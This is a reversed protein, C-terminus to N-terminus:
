ADLRARVIRALKGTQFPKSLLNVGEELKFDGTVLDACYGSAYIVRLAPDERQLREALERGSMGGPMVLDTLLLRIEDRHRQWVALADAGNAAELVRYGLKALAARVAPRVHMDDEVFLITENGRAPKAEAQRAREGAREAVRPFYVRFTTGSGVESAVSVWGQHQEVIGFVTALGLGTGKGVEKTTFFPEFIRGFHEPPIGCGTDTVSLEVFSGPRANPTQAASAEDFDAAATAVTLRGGGPMADRSNVVLNMLIQDVMGADARIFLPQMSFNFQVQIDERLIRRLMKTMNGISHNLDLDVPQMIEKRSFLLLQRTLAAARHAAATIEEVFERVDQNLTGSMAILDCQMQIVALVNNFDHAVGGALQGVAEMKQAQRYEAALKRRDTIDEAVGTIRHIRGEADRVPFARDHIWRISSDPRVVRYEVDYPRFPEDGPPPTSAQRVAERDDPHVAELWTHPSKYLAGCPRGWIAEYAPSVYLIQRSAPDLVWFVERISETIERFRQESARLSEVARVQETTEVLVAAACEPKGDRGPIPFFSGNWYCTVGPLRPTEGSLPLDSIAKGGDLAERLLPELQTGLLPLVERVPRGLHERAPVGNMAALMENVQMFRHQRDVLALGATAGHFFANLRQERLAIEERLRKREARIRADALARTVASGLRAIRDKLLYDTAGEKMAEVAVDEGVTGSILIFPIELGSERLVRAARLGDFRPLSYDSLIIDPRRPLEARYQEETEVRTYTLDFGSQRLEFALLLADDPSDEVMLVNLPQKMREEPNPRKIVSFLRTM